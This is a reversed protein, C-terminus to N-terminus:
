LNDANNNVAALNRPLPRPNACGGGDDLEGACVGILSANQAGPRSMKHGVEVALGKDHGVRLLKHRALRNEMSM